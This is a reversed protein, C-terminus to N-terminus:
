QDEEWEEEDIPYLVLFSALLRNIESETLVDKFPPMHTPEPGQPDKRGARSGNTITRVIFGYKAAVVSAKRVDVKSPDSLPKGASLLDIVVQVDEPFALSLKEAMQDLRPSTDNIYNPNPVGGKGEPGHCRACGASRYLCQGRRVIQLDRSSVAERRLEAPAVSASCNWVIGSVILFLVIGIRPFCQESRDPWNSEDGRKM